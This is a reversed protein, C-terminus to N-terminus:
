YQLFFFRQKTHKANGFRCDKIEVLEYLMFSDYDSLNTFKTHCWELHNIHGRIRVNYNLIFM